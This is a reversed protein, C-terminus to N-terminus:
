PKDYALDVQESIVNECHYWMGIIYTQRKCHGGKKCCVKNYHQSWGPIGDEITSISKKVRDEM